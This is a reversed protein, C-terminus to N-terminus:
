YDLNCKWCPISDKRIYQTMDHDCTNRNQDCANKYERGQCLSASSSHNSERDYQPVRRSELTKKKMLSQIDSLIDMRQKLSKAQDSTGSIAAGSSDQRDFTRWHAATPTGDSRYRSRSSRTDDDDDESRSGSSHTSRSGSSRSTRTSRSGSGSGSGSDNSRAHRYNDVNREYQDPCRPPASYTYIGMLTNPAIETSGTVPVKYKKANPDTAATVQIIYYKKGSVMNSPRFTHITSETKTVNANTVLIQDTSEGAELSNKSSHYVIYVNPVTTNDTTKANLVMQDGKMCSNVTIRANCPSPTSHTYIGMLTNLAAPTAGPTAGPTAPVKYKKADANTATATAVQIVYYKKGIVMSSLSVDGIPTETPTVTVSNVLITDTSEGAELSNKSSHNVLFVNSITTNDTTKAKFVVIDGELCATIAIRTPVAPANFFGESQGISLAVICTLLLLCVVLFKM